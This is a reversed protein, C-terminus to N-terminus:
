SRVLVSLEMESRLCPASGSKNGKSLGTWHARRASVRKLSGLVVDEVDLNSSSVRSVPWSVHDLRRCDRLVVGPATRM